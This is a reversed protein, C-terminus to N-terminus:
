EAYAINMSDVLLIKDKNFRYIEFQDGEYFSQYILIYEKEKYKFVDWLDRPSSLTENSGKIVKHNPSYIEGDKQFVFSSLMNVVGYEDDKKFESSSKEIDRITYFWLCKGFGCGEIKYIMELIQGDTKYTKDSKKCSGSTCDEFKYNYATIFDNVNIIWRGWEIQEEIGIGKPTSLVGENILFTGDKYSFYKWSSDTLLPVTQKPTSKFRNVPKFATLGQGTPAGTSKMYTKKIYSKLEPEEKKTDGGETVNSTEEAVDIKKETEFCSLRKLSDSISSCDKRKLNDPLNDYCTLRKLSDTESACDVTKKTPSVNDKADGNSENDSTQINKFENELYRYECCYADSQKDYKSGVRNLDRSRFLFGGPLPEIGIEDMTTSGRIASADFVKGIITVVYYGNPMMRQINKRFERSREGLKVLIPQITDDHRGFLVSQSLYGKVEGQEFSCMDGRCNFLGKLKVVKDTGMFMNKDFELDKKSLSIPNQHISQEEKDWKIRLKNINDPTCESIWGKEFSECLKTLKKNKSVEASREKAKEEVKNSEEEIKKELKDKLKDLAGGFDFGLSNNTFCFFSVLITLTSFFRKHKIM